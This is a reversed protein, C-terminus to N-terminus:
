LWAVVVTVNDLTGRRVAEDVLYKSVNQKDEKCQLAFDVVQQDSM